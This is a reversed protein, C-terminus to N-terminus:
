RTSEFESVKNCGMWLFRRRGGGGSRTAMTLMTIDVEGVAHWHDLSLREGDIKEVGGLFGFFLPVLELPKHLRWIRVEHIDLAWTGGTKDDKPSTPHERHSARRPQKAIM